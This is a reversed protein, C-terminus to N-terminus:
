NVPRQLLVFTASARARVGDFAAGSSAFLPPLEVKQYLRRQGHLRELPLRWPEADRAAAEDQSRKKIAEIESLWGMTLKGRENPSPFGVCGSFRTGCTRIAITLWRWLGMPPQSSFDSNARIGLVAGRALIACRVGCAARVRSRGCDHHHHEFADSKGKACDGPRVSLTM